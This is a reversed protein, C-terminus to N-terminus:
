EFDSPQAQAALTSHGLVVAAARIRKDPDVTQDDMISKLVDLAHQVYEPM